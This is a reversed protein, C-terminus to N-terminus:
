SIATLAALLKKFELQKQSDNDTRNNYLSITGLLPVETRQQIAQINAQSVSDDLVANAIWGKISLGQARIANITLLAHNICGLKIKVVVLIPLELSKALEPIGCHEDLPVMWGGVGEVLSFDPQYRKRLELYQHTIKTLDIAVGSDMAAIHPAIAPKFSYTNIQEYPLDISSAAQIQLADDNRLGDTSKECGSAVPKYGFCKLESESATQLLMSSIFTKGADTDTATIFYHSM